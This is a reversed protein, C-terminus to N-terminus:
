DIKLSLIDRETSVDVLHGSVTCQDTLFWTTQVDHVDAQSDPGKVVVEKLHLYAARDQNTSKKPGDTPCRILLIGAM